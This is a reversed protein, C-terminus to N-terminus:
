FLFVNLTNYGWANSFYNEILLILCLIMLDALEKRMIKLAKGMQNEVTKISIGLFDAIEKYSLEEMRSLRFVERCAPPLQQMGLDVRTKIENFELRSSASESYERTTSLEHQQHQLKVSEHRFHNLCRNNVSKYLYPRIAYEIQLNQRTQWLGVLVDQVIEEAIDIDKVISLAYNCLRQYYLRFLKEFADEDGSIIKQVLNQAEM